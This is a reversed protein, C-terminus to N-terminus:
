ILLAQKEQFSKNGVTWLGFEKKVISYIISPVSKGQEYSRELLKEVLEPNQSIYYETTKGYNVSLRKSHLLEYKAITYPIKEDQLSCYYYQQKQISSYSINNISAYEEMTVPTLLIKELAKIPLTINELDQDYERKLDEKFRPKDILFTREPYLIQLRKELADFMQQENM